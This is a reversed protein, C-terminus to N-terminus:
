GNCGGSQGGCLSISCVREQNWTHEIWIKLSTGPWLFLQKPGTSQLRWAIPSGGKPQRLEKQQAMVRYGWIGESLLVWPLCARSAHCHVQISNQGGSMEQGLTLQDKRLTIQRSNLWERWDGRLKWAM